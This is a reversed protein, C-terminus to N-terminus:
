TKMEKARAALITQVNNLDRRIYVLLPFWFFVNLIWFGLVSWMATVIGWQTAIFSGILPGLAKGTVDMMSALSIITARHEPLNVDTLTSYWNPNVGQNIFIATAISAFVLIVGPIKLAEGLPIGDPLVFQTKLFIVMFIIPLFNCLLAIFVKARKDKQFGIDGLKGFLLTGVGGVLFVGLIMANVLDAGANHVDEFYKFILLLIIAGPIVDIFNAVLWINSRNGVLLKIDKKSIRFRYEAGELILDRLETEQIGRKPERVWLLGFALVFTVLGLGFYGTRWSEGVSSAVGIGTMQGLLIALSVYAFSTTRRKESVTDGVLSYITPIIIGIGIGNLARTIFFFIYGASGSPTLITLISFSSYIICGWFCLRIRSQRDALIGAVVMSIASVLTFTFSIVGIPVVNNINNFFDRLLPNVLPNIMSQDAFDLFLIGCFLLFGSKLSWASLNTKNVPMMALM